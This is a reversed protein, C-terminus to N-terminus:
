KLDELEVPKIGARHFQLTGAKIAIEIADKLTKGSQLMAVLAAMTQDGCGTSDLESNPLDVQPIEFHAHSEKNILYAGNEGVTILVNEIGHEFLKKSALLASELDVVEIGSLTKMEHENPKILYLGANLISDINDEDQIGGPDFMVKIEYEKALELAKEITPIPCEMTLVLIGENLGVNRFLERADEIDQPCFDDSVGPLVIIQNEGSKTVPILAIGPLKNSEEFDLIKINSVDVSVDILSKVPKDWFGYPDKITRGVMAVSNSVSLRAIMEAINRSKGGPGILLEKGYIHEGSNPFRSLGSAVLDTNLSGIVITKM